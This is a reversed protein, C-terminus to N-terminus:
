WLVTLSNGYDGRRCGRVGQPLAPALAEKCGLDLEAEPLGSLSHKLVRDKEGDMQM